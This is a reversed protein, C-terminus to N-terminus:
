AITKSMFVHKIKGYLTHGPASHTYGCHQYFPIALERAALEIRTMGISRAITELEALLRRGIGQGRVDPAVAMFRIQGVGPAKRHLRGVALIRNASEALLHFADDEFEDRESGRPQGWPQRLLQWRLEYYTAFESELRPSRITM